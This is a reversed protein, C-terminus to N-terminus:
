ETLFKDTFEQETLKPVNHKDAAKNKSSGSNPDDTVLALTKSNVCSALEYGNKNLLQEFDKRKMSLTGTVCVSGKSCTLSTDPLKVINQIYTLNSLKNKNVVLSEMNAQGIANAITQVTASYEVNTHTLKMISDHVQACKKVTKDAIRPINCALLATKFAIPGNICKEMAHVFLDFQKGPNSGDQCRHLEDLLHTGQKYIDSVQKISWGNCFKEILTDSLGDIGAITKIWIVADLQLRGPCTANVCGIHVDTVWHLPTNCYTCTAPMHYNNESATDVSVIYPIIEGSKTITVKCGPALNNDQVYKANFATAYQVTTGSLEIADFKIRPVYYGTKTLSWVIEQVTTQKQEAAFKYAQSNWSVIHAESDVQLMQDAIVLGDQPYMNAATLVTHIQKMADDFSAETFLRQVSFPATEHIVSLKEFVDSQTAIGYKNPNDAAIVSYVVLSIAKLDEVTADKRNIIGAVTNRANKADSHKSKYSEFQKRKMLLEGRIAGTFSNGNLKVNFMDPAIYKLKYTIDFGQKGDGRTLAFDLTGHTYYLACSIGDLKLSCVTPVNRLKSSLEKWNHVKDLSGVVGYVHNRKVGFTTDQAVEYGHGVNAVLANKPDIHKLANLKSDFQADSLNSTGDTYYKQAAQKIEAELQAKDQASTAFLQKRKISM